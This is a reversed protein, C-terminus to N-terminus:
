KVEKKEFRRCGWFLLVALHLLSVMVIQLISKNISFAAYGQWFVTLSYLKEAFPIYPVIQIEVIFAVISMLVTFLITKGSEKVASAILMVLSSYATIGLAYLLHSRLLFAVNLPNYIAAQGILFMIGFSLIFPIVVMVFVSALAFVTSKVIYITSRSYGCIVQNKVVGIMHDSNIFFAALAGIFFNYLLSIKLMQLANYGILGISELSSDNMGWWGIAVLYFMGGYVLTIAICVNWFSRNKLLKYLETQLLNLM